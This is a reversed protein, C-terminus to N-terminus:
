YCFTQQPSSVWKQSPIHSLLHTLTSCQRVCGKSVHWKMKLMHVRELIHPGPTGHEDLTGLCGVSQLSQPTLTLWDTQMCLVDRHKQKKKHRNYLSSVCDTITECVQFHSSLILKFAHYLEKSARKWHGTCLQEVRIHMIANSYTMQTKIQKHM